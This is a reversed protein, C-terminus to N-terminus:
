NTDIGRGNLGVGAIDVGNTDPRTYKKIEACWTEISTSSRPLQLGQAILAERLPAPTDIGTARGIRIADAKKATPRDGQGPRPLPRNARSTSSKAPRSARKTADVSTTSTTQAAAARSRAPSASRSQATAPQAAEQQLRTQRDLYSEYQRREARVQREIELEIKAKELLWANFEARHALEDYLHSFVHAAYGLASVTGAAIGLWGPFHTVNMACALAAAMTGILLFPIFETWSRGLGIARLGRSSCAVMMFEFTGGLAVAVTWAGITGGFLTGFGYVQGAFGSVVSLWVVHPFANSWWNIVGGDPRVPPPPIALQPASPPPSEERSPAAESRVPTSAPPETKPAESAAPTPPPDSPPPLETPQGDTTSAAPDADQQPTAPSADESLINPPASDGRVGSTLLKIAPADNTLDVGLANM